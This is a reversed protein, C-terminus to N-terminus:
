RCFGDIDCCKASKPVPLVKTKQTGKYCCAFQWGEAATPHKSVDWEGDIPMLDALNAPNEDFLSAYDFTHGDSAHPCRLDSASTGGIGSLALIFAAVFNRAM